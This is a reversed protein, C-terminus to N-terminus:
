RPTRPSEAEEILEFSLRHESLIQALREAEVLAGVDFLDNTLLQALSRSGLGLAGALLRVAKLRNDKPPRLQIGWRGEKAIFSDRVDEPLGSFDAETINGCNGCRSSVSVAVRDIHGRAVWNEEIPQRCKACTATRRLAHVRSTVM